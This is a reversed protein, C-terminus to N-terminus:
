PSALLLKPCPLSGELKLGNVRFKFCVHPTLCHALLLKPCPLSRELKVESVMQILLGKLNAVQPKNRENTEVRLDRTLSLDYTSEKCKQTFWNQKNKPYTEHVM